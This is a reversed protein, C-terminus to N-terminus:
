RGGGDELESGSNESVPSVRFEKGV